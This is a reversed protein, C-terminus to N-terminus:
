EHNKNRWGYQTLIAISWSYFHTLGAAGFILPLWNTTIPTNPGLITFPLMTALGVILYALAFGTLAARRQIQRDREDYEVKGPDKKFFLQALGGIGAIGMFGLSGWAKPFGYKAYVVAIALATTILACTFTVFMFMAIKQIRKM